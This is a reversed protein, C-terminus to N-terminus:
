YIRVVDFMLEEDGRICSVDLLYKRAIKVAEEVDERTARRWPNEAVPFYADIRYPIRRDVGAIFKAIQEIESVDIYDPILVSEAKLRKGMSYIKQFNNKIRKGSVGTYDRYLDDNYAKISLVIEDIYDLPFLKLGNTLIINYSRFEEKLTRTLGPLEPDLSPEMGMFIVKNFKLAKIIEFVQHFSLFKDSTNTSERGKENINETEKLHCDYVQVKCLCGRCRMNCGWFHLYLSEEEPAYTIHYINM